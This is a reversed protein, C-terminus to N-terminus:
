RVSDKVTDELEALRILATGVPVYTREAVMIAHVFRLPLVLAYYKRLMSSRRDEQREYVLSRKFRYFDQLKMSEAVRLADDALPSLCRLGEQLDELSCVHDLFYTYNDTRFDHIDAGVDGFLKSPLHWGGDKQLKQVLLSETNTM